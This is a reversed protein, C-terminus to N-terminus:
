DIQNVKRIHQLMRCANCKCTLHHRQLKGLRHMNAWELYQNVLLAAAVTLSGTRDLYSVVLVGVTYSWQTMMHDVWDLRPWNTILEISIRVRFDRSGYLKLLTYFKFLALGALITLNAGVAMQNEIYLASIGLVSAWVGRADRHLPQRLARGISYMVMTVTADLLQWARAWGVKKTTTTM